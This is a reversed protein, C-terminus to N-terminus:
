LRIKFRKSAAGAEKPELGSSKLSSGLLNPASHKDKSNFPKPKIESKKHTGHMEANPACGRKRM